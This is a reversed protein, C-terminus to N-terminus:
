LMSRIKNNFLSNHHYQHVICVPENNENVIFGDVLRPPFGILNKEFNYDPSKGRLDNASTGCQYSWGDKPTTFLFDNVSYSRLLVNLAAQDPNFVPNNASLNYILRCIKSLCSVEGGISGANGIEHKSIKEYEKPFSQMLNDRGWPEDRYMLQESGVVTKSENGLKEKLWNFPNKQFFIDASDVCVAYKYNCNSLIESYALFREVVIRDPRNSKVFIANVSNESLKELTLSSPHSYFFIAMDDDPCKERFSKVVVELQDWNHNYCSTLAINKM